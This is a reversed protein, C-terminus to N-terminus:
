LIQMKGNIKNRAYIYGARLASYQIYINQQGRRNEKYM